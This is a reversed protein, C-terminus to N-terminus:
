ASALIWSIAVRSSSVPRGLRRVSRSRQRDRQDVDIVELADIVLMAVRDPIPRQAMEGPQGLVLQAAAGVDDAAPAALLEQQQQRFGTRLLRMGADVPQASPQHAM